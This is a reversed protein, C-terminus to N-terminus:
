VERSSVHALEWLHIPRLFKFLPKGRCATPTSIREYLMKNCMKLALVTICDLHSAIEMHLETPLNLFPSTLQSARRQATPEPFFNDVHRGYEICVFTQRVNRSRSPNPSFIGPQSSLLEKSTHQVSVPLKWTQSGDSVDPQWLKNVQHKLRTKLSTISKDIPRVQPLNEMANM